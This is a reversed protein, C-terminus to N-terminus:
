ADRVPKQYSQESAGFQGPNNRLAAKHGQSKKNM